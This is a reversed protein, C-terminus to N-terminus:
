REVNLSASLTRTACLRVRARLQQGGLAQQLGRKFNTPRKCNYADATREEVVFM